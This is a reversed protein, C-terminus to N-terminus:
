AEGHPQTFLAEGWGTHALVAPSPTIVRGSLPPTRLNTTYASVLPRVAYPRDPLSSLADPRLLASPGSDLLRFAGVRHSFGTCRARPPYQLISDSLNHGDWRPLCTRMM